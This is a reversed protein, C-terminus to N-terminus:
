IKVHFIAVLQRWSFYISLFNDFVCMKHRSLEHPDAICFKVSNSAFASLFHHARPFQGVFCVFKFHIHCEILICTSLMWLQMISDCLRSPKIGNNVAAITEEDGRMNYQWGHLWIPQSVSSVITFWFFVFLCFHIYLMRLERLMCVLINIYFQDNYM